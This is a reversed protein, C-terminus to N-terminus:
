DSRALGKLMEWEDTDVIELAWEEPIDLPYRDCSGDNRYQTNWLYSIALVRAKHMCCIFTCRKDPTGNMEYNYGSCWACGSAIPCSFCEDTSQSKRTICNLCDVRAKTEPTQMIGDYVNGIVYPEQADGVASPMYRICPYIDGKWDIALMSGTGGCFNRNNSEPIPHGFIYSLPYCIFPETKVLNHALLYDCLKKLEAYYIKAHETTWGKEFVTNFFVEPYGHEIMATIATSLYSINDPSLTMKSPMPGGRNQTYDDVAAIARDYTGNGNLDIRCSDHLEKCGDISVGYSIRGKHKDLFAQVNPQFYLLGNSSMSIAYRTAWPHHLEVCKDIFYDTIKDILDIEMLPEGGIFELIVGVSEAPIYCSVTPDATLLKDIFARAVEFPMVHSTKNHQYCYTCKMCCDETVQFTITRPFLGKSSTYKLETDSVFLRTLMEGYEESRIGQM